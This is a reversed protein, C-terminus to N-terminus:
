PISRRRNKVIDVFCDVEVDSGFALFIVFFAANFSGSVPVLPPEFNLLARIFKPLRVAAWTAIVKV